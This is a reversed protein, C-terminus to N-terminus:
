VYLNKNFIDRFLQEMERYVEATQPLKKLDRLRKINEAYYWEEKDKPVSFKEWVAEGCQRQDSVISRLNSVKDAMVLMKLRVDGKELKDLSMQKRIKWELGKDETHGEILEAAEEGFLYRIEEISYDTDEAVDHLVGAIQLIHDAEMATLIQLVELPHCIYDLQMGKRLQGKHAKTAFVIAEHLQQSQPLDEYLYKRDKNM